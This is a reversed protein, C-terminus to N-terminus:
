DIVSAAIGIQCPADPADVILTIFEDSGFMENGLELADDWKRDRPQPVMLNFDQIAISVKVPM